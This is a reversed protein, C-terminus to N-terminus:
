LLYRLLDWVMQLYSFLYQDIFHALRPLAIIAVAFLVTGASGVLMEKVDRHM